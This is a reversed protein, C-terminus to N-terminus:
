ADLLLVHRLGGSLLDLARFHVLAVLELFALEHYEGRVFELRQFFAGTMENFDERENRVLRDIGDVVVPRVENSRVFAAALRVAQQLAGQERAAAARECAPVVLALCVGSRDRVKPVRVPVPGVATVIERGPLYGNRVVARRGDM